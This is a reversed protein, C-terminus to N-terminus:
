EGGLDDDASDRIPLALKFCEQPIIALLQGLFELRLQCHSEQVVQCASVLPVQLRRYEIGIPPQHPVRSATCHRVFLAM